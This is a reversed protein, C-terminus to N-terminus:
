STENLSLNDSEVDNRIGCFHIRLVVCLGAIVFWNFLCIADDNKNPLCRAVDGKKMHCM